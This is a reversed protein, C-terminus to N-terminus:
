SRRTQFRQFDFVSFDFSFPFNEREGARSGLRSLPRGSLSLRLCVILEFSKKAQGREFRITCVKNKMLDQLSGPNLPQKKVCAMEFENKKANGIKNINLGAIASMM